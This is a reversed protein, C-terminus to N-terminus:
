IQRLLEAITHLTAVLKNGWTDLVEKWEPFGEPIVPAANMEYFATNPPRPGIRWMYRCKPDPGSPIRPRDEEAIAGLKEISSPDYVAEPIEVGEPTLGVQYHLEPRADVSKTATTQTFYKEMLNLFNDNDSSLVRPDKVIVCSTRRFCDTIQRGLSADPKGNIVSTLDFVEM